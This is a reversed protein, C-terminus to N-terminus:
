RSAYNVEASSFWSSGFWQFTRSIGRALDGKYEFGLDKFRDCSIRFSLQNMIRDEVRDISLDPAHSLIIELIERVTAHTTAVNYTKREYIKNKLVFSVARVADELDLYPRCQDMATKWVTVPKRMLAQWCFKNVATHFRMGPSPGFITGFRFITFNLGDTQRMANLLREARIKSDAYPSQPRLDSPACNEDAFGALPGYVSTTSIFILPCHVEVCARAVRQSGLFNVKDVREQIRFSGSADTIAALHIVVDTDCFLATLDATVIDAEVFRFRGQKPLDFLSCYRQSSLDDLMVVQADPFIQPIERILRSGIHGLAGTIVIRM